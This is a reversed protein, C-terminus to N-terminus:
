QVYATARPNPYLQYDGAAANLHWLIATTKILSASLSKAKPHNTTMITKLPKVANLAHSTAFEASYVKLGHEMAHESLNRYGIAEIPNVDHLSRSANTTFIACRGPCLAINNANHKIKISGKKSDHLNYVGLSNKSALVLAISNAGIEVTGFPTKISTDKKPAFLVHGKGLTASESESKENGSLLTLGEIDLDDDTWVLANIENAIFGNTSAANSEGASATEGATPVNTNATYANATTTRANTNTILADGYTTGANALPTSSTGTVFQNSLAATTYSATSHAATLTSQSGGSVQTEISAASEIVPPDAIIDVGSILTVGKKSYPTVFTLNAAKATATNLTTTKKLYIGKAGWFIAGGGSATPTIYKKPQKGAVQTVPGIGITVNGLGAGSALAQITSDADLVIVDNKKTKKGGVNLHQILINGENASVTANAAVTITGANTALSLSGNDVSAGNVTTPGNAVFDFLLQANSGAGLTVGDTRTSSLFVSGNDSVATINAADTAFRTGVTGVDGGTSRLFLTSPSGINLGNTWSNLATLSINTSSLTGINMNSGPTSLSLTSGNAVISGNIANTAVSVANAGGNFTVTSGGGATIIGTTTTTNIPGATTGNFSLNSATTQIVGSAGFALSLANGAGLGQINLSGTPDTITGNVTLSPTAITAAGAATVSITGNVIASGTYTLLPVNDNLTVGAPLVLNTFGSGPLNAAGVDFFGGSAAGAASLTLTQTGLSKQILAVLEAPTALDGNSFTVNPNGGEAITMSFAGGGGFSGSTVPSNLSNGNIDIAGAQPGAEIAGATRNTGTGVGVTFAGGGLVISKVTSSYDANANYQSPLGGSTTAITVTGGAGLALISSTGHTTPLPSWFSNITGQVTVSNGSLDITGGAGGLGPLTTANANALGDQGVGGGAGGADSPAVGALGGGGGGGLAGATGGSNAISGSYGAGGVAWYYPWSNSHGGIGPIMGGGGGGGGATNGSGQAPGGAGGMGFSGGGGGGGARTARGGAGGGGGGSADLYHQVIITQADMTISGGDGGDGGAGGNGGFGAGTGGSGGGGGAEVASVTIIGNVASLTINGGDGGDGGDAGEDFAQGGAGGPAAVGLFAASTNPVITIDGNTSTVSINGGNGGTLGNVAPNGFGSGALGGASQINGVNIDGGATITVNGGNGGNAQRVARIENLGNALIFGPIDITNGATITVTAPGSLISVPYASNNSITGLTRTLNTPTTSAAVNGLQGHMGGHMPITPISSVVAGPDTDSFVEAYYWVNGINVMGVAAFKHNPDLIQSRHNQQGVPEAMMNAHVTDYTQKPTVGGGYMLGLNEPANTLTVFIAQARQSHHGGRLDYHDFNGTTAIYEAQLLALEFLAPSYTLVQSVGNASRSANLTTIAYNNIDTQWPLSPNDVQINAGGGKSGLEISTNMLTGATITGAGGRSGNLITVSGSVNPTATSLTVNGGGGTGAQNNASQSFTYLTPLVIASSGAPDSTAGAIVTVNGNAAPSFSVTGGGFTNISGTTGVNISGPTLSSAGTGSFAVMLVDGGHGGATTMTITGNTNIATVGSLDIAGGTASGHGAGAGQTITLTTSTNNNGSQGAPSVNAGAIIILDGGDGGTASRTTDITGGQVVVDGSAILALNNGATAAVTALILNGGTNFYTPDGTICMNGLKLNSTNAGFDAISATGNVWGTTEGVNGFITGTGSNINVEESLYDGGRLYSNSAGAYSADRVNIDGLSAKFSGDWANINLDVDTTAAFNINARASEIAGANEIMGNGTTLNVNNGGIISGGATNVIGGEITALSVNQAARMSGSNSLSRGASVSLDGSSEITGSNSLDRDASLHLNLAPNLAGFQAALSPSASSSILAGAENTINKASIRATDGEPRNSIAYVSGYNVLDGRLRFDGNNSFNGIADVSAPVVLSSARVRSGADSINNLILQGDTARGSNDLVLAQAGDTAQQLAVYEAPTVLAGASLTKSEGGVTITVSPNDSFLQSGLRISRRSSSLDLEVDKAVRSVAGASDVFFSRNTTRNVQTTHLRDARTDARHISPEPASVISPTAQIISNASGRWDAGRGGRERMERAFGRHEGAMRALRALHEGGDRANAPLNISLFLGFASLPVMVQSLGNPQIKFKMQEGRTRGRAWQDFKAVRSLGAASAVEAGSEMRKENLFIV